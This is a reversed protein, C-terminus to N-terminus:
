GGEGGDMRTQGEDEDDSRSRGCGIGDLYVSFLGHLVGDVVNNSSVNKNQACSGAEVRRAHHFEGYTGEKLDGNRLIESTAPVTHAPAKM